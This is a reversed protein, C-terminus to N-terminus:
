TKSPHLEAAETTLVDAAKNLLQAAYAKVKVIRTRASRASRRNLKDM